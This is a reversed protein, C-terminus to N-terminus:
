HHLFKNVSALNQKLYNPKKAQAGLHLNAKFNGPSPVRNVAGVPKGDILLVRKDGKSVKSIFKQVVIKQTFNKTLAAIREVSNKDLKEILTVGSGGKEYLPKIVIKIKELLNKSTKLSM